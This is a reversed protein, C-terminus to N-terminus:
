IAVMARLYPPIPQPMAFAFTRGNAGPRQGYPAASMVATLPEPVTVEADYTVRARPTDQLPVLTRAHIAQCQSFLFPHRQGATQAPDLWQLALAEPSTRYAITVESSQAPLQLQLKQGLIPEDAGLACPINCGTPTQVSTITLGKSDLDVTGSSPTEFVLTANGILQHTHFDVQWRLRVHKARPQDTDFYSHPDIRAM